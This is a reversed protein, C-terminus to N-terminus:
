RAPPAPVAPSAPSAALACAAAGVSQGDPKAIRGGNRADASHLVRRVPGRQGAHFASRFAMRDPGARPRVSIGLPYTWLVHRKWISPLLRPQTTRKQIQSTDKEPAIANGFRHEHCEHDGSGTRPDKTKPSPVAPSLTLREIQLTSYHTSITKCVLQCYMKIQYHPILGIGEGQKRKMKSFYLPLSKTRELEKTRNKWLQFQPFFDSHLNHLKRLIGSIIFKM